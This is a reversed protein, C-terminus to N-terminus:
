ASSARFGLKDVAEGLARCFRLPNFPNERDNLVPVSFVVALRQTLPKYHEDAANRIRAAFRDLMMNEEM